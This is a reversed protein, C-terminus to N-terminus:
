RLLPAGLSAMHVRIQHTRGTELSCKVLSFDHWQKLVQYNTIAIQGNSNDICREIISDPNRAIPKSIVGTKPALHGHLLVYINKKFPKIRWKSLLVKM